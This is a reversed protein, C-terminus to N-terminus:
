AAAKIDEATFRLVIGEQGFLITPVQNLNTNTKM